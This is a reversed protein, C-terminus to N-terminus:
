QLLKQRLYSDACKEIVQGLINEELADEFGCLDALVRLEAIFTDLNENQEQYRKRFKYREAWKNRKPRFYDSLVKVVDAYKVKVGALGTLLRQVGPGALHLLSARQVDDEEKNLKTAIRYNQFAEFWHKWEDALNTSELNVPSLPLHSFKDLNM